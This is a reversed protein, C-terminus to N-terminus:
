KYPHLPLATTALQASSIGPLEDVKMPQRPLSFPWRKMFADDDGIDSTWEILVGNTAFVYCPPGSPVTIWWFRPYVGTVFVFSQTATNILEVKQPKPMSALFGDLTRGNKGPNTSWIDFRILAVYGLLLVAIGSTTKLGRKM